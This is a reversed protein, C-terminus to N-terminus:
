SCEVNVVTPECREDDWSNGRVARKRKHQYAGGVFVAIDTRLDIAAVDLRGQLNTFSEGETGSNAQLLRSIDLDPTSPVPSGAARLPVDQDKVHALARAIRTRLSARLHAPLTRPIVITGHVM